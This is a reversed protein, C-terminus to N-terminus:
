QKIFKKVQGNVKLLYTGAPLHSIPISIQTEQKFDEAFVCKGNGDFLEVKGLAKKEAELTLISSAPNPYIYLKIEDNNINVINNLSNKFVKVQGGTLSFCGPSTNAKLTVNYVVTDLNPNYVVFTHTPDERWSSGGDGFDWDYQTYYPVTNAIFSVKLPECGIAPDPNHAFSVVPKETVQITITDYRNCALSPYERKVNVSYRITGVNPNTTITQTTDGTSWKYCLSPIGADLVISLGSCFSTDNGLHIEPNKYIAVHICNTDIGCGGSKTVVKYFGTDALTIKAKQYFYTNEGNLFAGQQIITNSPGIWTYYAGEYPTTALKIRDGECYELNPKDAIMNVNVSRFDSFFGYRCTSADGTIVGLHFPEGESHYVVNNSGTPIETSTFSHKAVVWYPNGPVETFSVNLDKVLNKPTGNNTTLYLSDEQGKRIIVTLEFGTPAYGEISDKLGGPNTGVKGGRAFPIRSSGTCVISPLIAGAIESNSSGTIQFVYIPRSARIYIAPKQAAKASFGGKYTEGKQLTAVPTSQGDIYIETGDETATLFYYDGNPLSGNPIIYITGINEVPISQDMVADAAYLRTLPDGEKGQLPALSCDKITMAIPKNSTVESGIPRDAGEGQKGIQISYTQGRNLTVDFPIGAVHGVVDKSPKITVVTGDETAVIDCSFRSIVFTLDGAAIFRNQGAIFFHTGLASKGKLTIFDSNNRDAIEYYATILATSNIHLGRNEVLDPTVCELMAKRSTLYYIISTNAPIHIEESQWAMSPQSIIVTASDEKTSLHLLIPEDKPYEIGGHNENLDPCALWFETDTQSNANISIFLLVIVSLIIKKM